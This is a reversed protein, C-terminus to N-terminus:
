PTDFYGMFRELSLINPNCKIGGMLNSALASKEQSMIGRWVDSTTTIDLDYVDETVQGKCIEVIGRRIQLM